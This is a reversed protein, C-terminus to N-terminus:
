TQAEEEGAMPKLTPQSSQHRMRSMALTTDLFEYCSGYNWATCLVEVNFTRRLSCSIYKYCSEHTFMKWVSFMAHIYHLLLNREAIRNNSFSSGISTKFSAELKRHTHSPCEFFAWTMCLLLLPLGALLGGVHPHDEQLVEKRTATYSKQNALCIEGVWVVAHRFLLFRLLLSWRWRYSNWMEEWVQAGDLISVSEHSTNKVRWMGWVAISMRVAAPGFNFRSRHSLSSQM